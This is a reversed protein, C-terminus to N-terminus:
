SCCSFFKRGFDESHM